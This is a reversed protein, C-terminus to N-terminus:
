ERGMAVAIVPQSPSTQIGQAKDDVRLLLRNSNTIGQDFFVASRITIDDPMSDWVGSYSYVLDDGRHDPGDYRLTIGKLAFRAQIYALLAAESDPDDVSPASDPAINALVPEIDHASLRHTVFVAAKARDVTITTLAQHGRHALLQAPLLAAGLAMVLLAIIRMM